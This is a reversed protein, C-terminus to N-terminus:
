LVVTEVHNEEIAKYKPWYSPEEASVTHKPEGFVM